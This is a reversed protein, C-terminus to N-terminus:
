KGQAKALAAAANRADRQAQAATQEFAQAKTDAAQALLALRSYNARVQVLTRGANRATGQGQLQQGQAMMNAQTQASQARSLQQQAMNLQMLASQAKIGDFVSNQQAVGANNARLAFPVIATSRSSPAQIVAMQARDVAAQADRVAQGNTNATLARVTSNTSAQLDVGAAASQTAQVLAAAEDARNSANTADVRALRAAKAAQKALRKTQEANARLAALSGPVPKAASNHQPAPNDKAIAPSVCLLVAAFLASVTRVSFGAAMIKV